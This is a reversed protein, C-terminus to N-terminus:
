AGSHAATFAARGRDSYLQSGLGLAAAYQLLTVPPASLHPGSSLPWVTGVSKDVALTSLQQM